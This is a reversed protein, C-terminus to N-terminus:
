VDNGVITGEKSAYEQSFGSLEQLFHKLYPQHIDTHNRLTDSCHYDEHGICGCSSCKINTTAMAFLTGKFRPHKKRSIDQRFCADALAAPFTEFEFLSIGTCVFKWKNPGVKNYINRIKRAQKGKHYVYIGLPKRPMVSSNTVKLPNCTFTMYHNEFSYEQAFVEELVPRLLSSCKITYSGDNNFSTDVLETIQQDEEQECHASMIAPFAESTKDKGFRRNPVVRLTVDQSSISNRSYTEGRFLIDNADAIIRIDVRKGLLQLKPKTAEHYTSGPRFKDKLNEIDQKAAADLGEVNDEILRDEKVETMTAEEKGKEENREKGKVEQNAVKKNEISPTCTINRDDHPPSYNKGGFILNQGNNKNPSFKPSGIAILSPTSDQEEYHSFLKKKPSRSPPIQMKNPSRLVVDNSGEIEPSSERKRKNPSNTQNNM